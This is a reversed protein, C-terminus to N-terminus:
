LSRKFLLQVFTFQMFVRQMFVLQMFVLQMFVLMFVLQMHICIAHISYTRLVLGEKSEGDCISPELGGIDSYAGITSLLRAFMSPREEAVVFVVIVAVAVTIFTLLTSTALLGCKIYIYINYTGTNASAENASTAPNVSIHDLSPAERTVGRVEDSEAMDSECLMDASLPSVSDLGFKSLRQFLVTNETLAKSM